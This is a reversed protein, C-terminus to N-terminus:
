ARVDAGVMLGHAVAFEEGTMEVGDVRLQQLLIAGWKAGVGLGRHEGGVVTVIGPKNASGPLLRSRLIQARVGRITACPLQFPPFIRARMWSDLTAAIETWDAELEGFHFQHMSHYTVYRLEQPAAKLSGSLVGPLARSILDMAEDLGRRYLDWSTTDPEINWTNQAYVAGNDVGADPVDHLTVGHMRLGDHIAWAFPDCGRLLPLPSNHVNVVGRRPVRILPDRIIRACQVSIVLDAGVAAVAACVEPANPNAPLLLTTGSV